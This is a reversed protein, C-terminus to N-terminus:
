DRIGARIQELNVAGRRNRAGLAFHCCSGLSGPRQVHELPNILGGWWGSHGHSSFRYSAAGSTRTRTRPPRQIPAALHATEAKEKETNQKCTHLSSSHSELNQTRTDGHRIIPRFQRLLKTPVRSRNRGQRLPEDSPFHRNASLAFQVEDQPMRIFGGHRRPCVSQLVQSARTIETHWAPSTLAPLSLTCSFAICPWSRAGQAKIALQSQMCLLYAWVSLFARCTWAVLSADLGQMWVCECSLPDHFGLM